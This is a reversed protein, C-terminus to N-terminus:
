KAQIYSIEHNVIKLTRSVNDIIERVTTSSVIQDKKIICLTNSFIKEVLIGWTNKNTIKPNRISSSLLCIQQLKHKCIIDPNNFHGSCLQVLTVCKNPVWDTFKMYEKGNKSLSFLQNGDFYEYIEKGPYPKM